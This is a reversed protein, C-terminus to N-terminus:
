EGQIGKSKFWSLVEDTTIVKCFWDGISRLTARRLEESYTACADDVLIVGFGHDFAGRVTAEVCQNTVAGGVVLTEIGLHHLVLDIRTTGFAGAGNKAVVVENELPALEPIIPNGQPISSSIRAGAIWTGARLLSKMRGQDRGDRTLLGGRTHVVELHTQRFAVQLRQINRVAREVQRWYYDLEDEVGLV